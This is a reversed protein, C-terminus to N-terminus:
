YVTIPNWGVQSTKSIYIVTTGVLTFVGSFVMLNTWSGTNVLIAGAIPSTALGPGACILFALGTRYGIEPLPSLQAVLAGLLSVYAGSFFGFLASFAIIAAQSSAPIWLGLIFIGTAYCSICFANFKGLKDAAFGSALRGFLSAANLIAVLYQALDTDFGAALARVPLFTIPAFIGFTLLFLGALLLVSGREQFPRLLQDKSLQSPRPPHRTRVTLNAIVLLFLILFASIRLAWGYGLTAFIRNLMIPFVVGGLSSGTALIGFAIGRKKDFWGVICTLAPQYVAAVGIASCVGQSLIIQYYETSLSAMMLGFVHLLSGVLILYRPGYKDFIKGV